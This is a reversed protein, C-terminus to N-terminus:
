GGSSKSAHVFYATGYRNHGSAWASSRANSASSTYDRARRVRTSLGNRYHGAGGAYKSGSVASIEWVGHKASRSAWAKGKAVTQSRKKYVDAEATLLRNTDIDAAGMALRFVFGMTSFTVLFCTILSVWFRKRM